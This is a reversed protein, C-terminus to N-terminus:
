SFGASPERAPPEATPLPHPLMARMALALGLMGLALVIYFRMGVILGAAEAIASVLWPLVIGGVGGGAILVTTVRATRHPHLRGGLAIVTPFIGSLAAGTAAFGLVVTGSAEAALAVTLAVCTCHALSTVM